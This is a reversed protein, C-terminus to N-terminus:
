ITITFVRSILNKFGKISAGYGETKRDPIYIGHTSSGDKRKQPLEVLTNDFKIVEGARMGTDVSVVAYDYIYDQGM